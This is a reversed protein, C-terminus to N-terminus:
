TLFGHSLDRISIDIQRAINHSRNAHNRADDVDIWLELDAAIEIPSVTV